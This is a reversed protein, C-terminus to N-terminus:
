APRMASGVCTAGYTPGFGVSIGPFEVKFYETDKAQFRRVGIRNIGLRERKHALSRSGGKHSVRNTEDLSFM